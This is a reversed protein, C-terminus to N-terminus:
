SGPEEPPLLQHFTRRLAMAHIVLAQDDDLEIWIVELLNGAMNPGIALVTPPDADPELDVITIAREIAHHIDDDTAGHKHASGHIEM